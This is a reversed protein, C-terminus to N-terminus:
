SRHCTATTARDLKLHSWPSNEENHGPRGIWNRNIPSPFMKNSKTRSSQVDSFDSETITSNQASLRSADSAHPASGQSDSDMLSWHSLGLSMWTLLYGPRNSLFWSKCAGPLLVCQWQAALTTREENKKSNQQFNSWSGLKEESAIIRNRMSIFGVQPVRTTHGPIRGLCNHYYLQPSGRCYATMQCKSAKAMWLSTKLVLSCGSHVFNHNCVFHPILTSSRFPFVAPGKNKLHPNRAPWQTVITWTVAVSSLRSCLLDKGELSNCERKREACGVWWRNVFM